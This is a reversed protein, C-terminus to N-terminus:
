GPIIECSGLRPSSVAKIVKLAWKAGEKAVAISDTHFRATVRQVPVRHAGFDNIKLAATM